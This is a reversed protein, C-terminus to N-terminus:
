YVRVWVGNSEGGCRYQPQFLGGSGEGAIGNMAADSNVWTSPEATASKMKRREEATSPWVIDLSSGNLALSGTRM